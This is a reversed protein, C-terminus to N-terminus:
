DYLELQVNSAISRHPLPNIDISLGWKPPFFPATLRERNRSSFVQKIRKRNSIGEIEPHSVRSYKSLECFINQCDIAKLDRGFLGEFRIGLRDFEAQQNEVMWFIIKEADERPSEPFCKRIGDHAGPGAVVFENEDFDTLYSYNIDIAYQFALFPGLSPYSLIINYIESLSKSHSVKKTIESQMMFKLLKLHNSHKRKEGFKPSPMIYAASYITKGKDIRDLLFKDVIDFDFSSWRVLGFNREIEKWTEIKNFIKFLLTRFIVDEDSLSKANDSYLVNSILFQSVRDAARFSNTFRYKSIIPDDTWPSSDGQLRALYAQHRKAAFRWYDDFAASRPHTQM